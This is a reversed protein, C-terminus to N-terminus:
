LWLQACWRLMRAMSDCLRNCGHWSALLCHIRNQRHRLSRCPEEHLCCLPPVVHAELYGLMRMQTTYFGSSTLM